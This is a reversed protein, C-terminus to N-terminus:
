NFIKKTKRIVYKTGSKGKGYTWKGGRYTQKGVYVTGKATKRYVYRVGNASKRYVYKGGRYTKSAIGRRKRKVSVQQAKVSLNGNSSITEGIFVISLMMVVAFFLTTIKKM